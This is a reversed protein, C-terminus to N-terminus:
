GEVVGLGEREVWTFGQGLSLLEWDDGSVTGDLQLSESVKLQAVALLDYSTIFPDLESGLDVDGAHLNLNDGLDLWGSNFLVLGQLHSSETLGFVGLALFSVSTLLPEDSVDTKIDWPDIFLDFLGDITSGDLLDSCKKKLSLLGESIHIVNLAFSSLSPEYCTRVGRVVDNIDIFDENLCSIDSNKKLVLEAVDTVGLVLLTLILQSLFDKDCSRFAEKDLWTFFNVSTDM